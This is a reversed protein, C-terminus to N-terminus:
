TSPPALGPLSVVMDAVLKNLKDQAGDGENIRKQSTARWALQGSERDKIDLILTGDVYNIARVDVNGPAGYYGWGYGYVSPGYTDVRYDTGPQIGVYYAVLLQASAPDSILQYGKAGLNSNVATRIRERIIDNDIRPDGHRSDGQPMPSWAYTAGPTISANAAQLVSVKAPTECAALVLAASMAAGFLVRAINM